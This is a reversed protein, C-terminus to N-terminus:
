LPPAIFLTEALLTDKASSDDSPKIGLIPLMPMPLEAPHNLPRKVNEEKASCAKHSRM